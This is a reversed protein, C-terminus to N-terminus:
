PQHNQNYTVTAELIIVENFLFVVWVHNLPQLYGLSCSTKETPGFRIRGAGAGAGLLLVRAGVGYRGIVDVKVILETKINM